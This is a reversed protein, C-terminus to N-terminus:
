VVSKRDTLNDLIATLSGRSSRLEKWLDTVLDEPLEPPLLLVGHPAVAATWSGEAWRSWRVIGHESM